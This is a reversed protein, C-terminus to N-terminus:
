ASGNSSHALGIAKHALAAVIAVLEAPEVPKSVHTQFGAHLSRRRDETRAFASLAVAPTKIGMRRVTSLFAYGDRVPMAIDSVIVDLREHEMTSLAENTSGALLVRAGCERLLRGILDRADPDDDVALVTVGSLNPADYHIQSGQMASAHEALGNLGELPKAVPLQVTFTSGQGEDSTVQVRGGHIDVLQKVIALGLGL